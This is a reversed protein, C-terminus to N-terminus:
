NIHRYCDFHLVAILEELEGGADGGEWLHVLLHPASVGLSLKMEFVIKFSLADLVERREDLLGNFASSGGDFQSCHTAIQIHAPDTVVGDDFDHGTLLLTARPHPLRLLWHDEKLFFQNVHVARFHFQGSDVILHRTLKVGAIVALTLSDVFICAQLCEALNALASPLEAVAVSIHLAHLSKEGSMQLAQRFSSLSFDEFELGLRLHQNGLLFLLKRSRELAEVLKKLQRNAFHVLYLLHLHALLESVLEFDV